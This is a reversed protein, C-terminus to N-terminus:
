RAFAGVIEVHPSWRFQDVPTVRTLKFGGGILIKADRAFAVPDCSIAVAKEARSAAIQEAQFRAGSRPPDFAVADFRKLELPALPARLLDRREVTVRKLAGGAGDAASKLAAVQAEDGDVGHVEAHDAFRLAFTGVGCFLDAIRAAGSLASMALAALTEEGLMTPQTFAGPPPTVRARGMTLVPARRTVLPEGNFSLRALDAAQAAQAAQALRAAGWQAPLGAGKVDVDLGTETELCALTVDGRAPAFAAGLAALATLKTQFRATLAPCASVEVLGNSGRAMFGFRGGAGAHFAARRRGEGWASRIEEVEVDIARRALAKVVLDRKWALYAGERWHQLQCGGCRGFHGCVPAIRDASSELIAGIEGREGAVRARVREGPLGFPIYLPGAEVHAISDGRAGVEFIVLDMDAPAARLPARPRTPASERASEHATEPAVPRGKLAEASRIPRKM